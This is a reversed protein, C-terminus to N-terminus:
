NTCTRHHGPRINITEQVARHALSRPKHWKWSQGSSSSCTNRIRPLQLPICHHFICTYQGSMQQIWEFIWLSKIHNYPVFISQTDNRASSIKDGVWNRFCCSDTSWLIMNAAIKVPGVLNIMELHSSSHPVRNSVIGKNPIGTEQACTHSKTQRGPASVSFIQISHRALISFWRYVDLRMKREVETRFESVAGQFAM